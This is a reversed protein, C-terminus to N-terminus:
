SKLERSISICFIQLQIEINTLVSNTKLINLVSDTELIDNIFVSLISIYTSIHLSFHMSINIEEVMIENAPM